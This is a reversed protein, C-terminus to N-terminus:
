KEVKSLAYGCPMAAVTVALRFQRTRLLMRVTDWRIKRHAPHPQSHHLTCNGKTWRLRRNQRRM